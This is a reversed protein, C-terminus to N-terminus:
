RARGARRYGLVQEHEAQRKAAKAAAARERRTNENLLRQGTRFAEAIRAKEESRRSM